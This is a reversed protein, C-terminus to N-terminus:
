GGEADSGLRAASARLGLPAGTVRLSGPGPAGTAAIKAAPASTADLGANAGAGATRALPDTVEAILGVLQSFECRPLATDFTVLELAPRAAELKTRSWAAGDSPDVPFPEDHVAFAAGLTRTPGWYYAGAIYLGARGTYAGPTGGEKAAWRLLLRGQPPHYPIGSADWFFREIGLSNGRLVTTAGDHPNEDIKDFHTAPSTPFPSFAGIQEDSIPRLLVDGM